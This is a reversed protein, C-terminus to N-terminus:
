GCSFVVHIVSGQFSPVPVASYVPQGTPGQSVTLYCGDSVLHLEGGRRICHNRLLKLGLGGTRGPLSSNRDALAWRLAPEALLIPGNVGKYNPQSTYDRIPGLYGRGLDVLTIKLQKLRPYYQGCAFLPRDTEAHMRVNTFIELLHSTIDEQEEPTCATGMDPQQFLGNSIYDLFATADTVDFAQMQVSTTSGSQLDAGASGDALFGNQLLVGFRQRVTDGDIGFTLGQRVELDHLMAGLLACQNADLWRLRQLDLLVAQNRLLLGKGYWQVLQAFGTADTRIAGQLPLPQYSELTLVSM